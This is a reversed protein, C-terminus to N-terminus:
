VKILWMLSVCIKTFQAPSVKEDTKSKIGQSDDLNRFAKKLTNEIVNMNHQDLGTM